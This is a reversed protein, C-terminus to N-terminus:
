LCAFFHMNGMSYCPFNMFVSFFTFNRNFLIAFQSFFQFYAFNGNLIMSFQELPWFYARKPCISIWGQTWCSMPGDPGSGLFTDAASPMLDWKRRRRGNGWYTWEVSWTMVMCVNGSEFKIFDTIKGTAIDVKVCDQAKILPDPYRRPLHITNPKIDIANSFSISIFVNDYLYLWTIM